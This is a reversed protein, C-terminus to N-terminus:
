ERTPGVGMLIYISRIFYRKETKAGKTYPMAQCNNNLTNTSISTENEERTKQEELRVVNYM